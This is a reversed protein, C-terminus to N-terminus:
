RGALLHYIHERMSEPDAGLQSLQDVPDWSQTLALVLHETGVYNHNLLQAESRALELTRKTEPAM